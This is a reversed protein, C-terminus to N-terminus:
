SVSNGDLPLPKQPDVAMWAVVVACAVFVITFFSELRRFSLTPLMVRRCTNLTHLYDHLPPVSHDETVHLIAESLQKYYPSSLPVIFGMSRSVVLEGTRVISDCRESLVSTALPGDALMYDCDGRSLLRILSSEDAVLRPSTANQGKRCERRRNPQWHMSQM